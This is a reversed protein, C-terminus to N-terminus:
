QHRVLKGALWYNPAANSNMTSKSILSFRILGIVAQDSNQSNITNGEVSFHINLM